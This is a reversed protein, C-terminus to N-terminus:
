MTELQKTCRTNKWQTQIKELKTKNENVRIKIVETWWERRRTTTIKTVGCNFKQM